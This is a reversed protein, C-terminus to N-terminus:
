LLKALKKRLRRRAEFVNWKVMTVTTSMIEAVDKQPLKEIAFLLLATRLKDPLEDIAKQLADALERAMAYQSGEPEKGPLQAEPSTDDTDARLQSLSLRPQHSRQRRYSLAQNVMIRMLWSGFREPQQLQGLSIFAKVFGDQAVDLGDEVNGLLRSAVAVARRRYLKVLQEFARRDGNQAARVLQAQEDAM